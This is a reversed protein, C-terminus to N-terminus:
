QAALASMRVWDQVTVQGDGAGSPYVDGRSVQALDLTTLGMVHRIALLLDASGLIGDGNIDGAIVPLEGITISGNIVTGGNNTFTNRVYLNLGSLDLMTGAELVLDNVYIAEGSNVQCLGNLCDASNNYSDLLQVYTDSTGIELTGLVFNNQWGATFRGLDTASAELTQPNGANRSGGNFQFFTNDTFWDTNRTSQNIFDETIIFRDGPDGSEALYGNPGVNLTSVTITSPDFLLAGYNSLGGSFSIDAHLIELRGHNVAPAHFTAPGGLLLIDGTATNNLSGSITASGVIDLAVANNITNYHLAAGCDGDEAPAGAAFLLAALALVIGAAARPTSNISHFTNM